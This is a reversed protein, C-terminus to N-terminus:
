PMIGIPAEIKIEADYDYDMTVDFSYAELYGTAPFSDQMRMRVILKSDKDLWLDVYEEGAL